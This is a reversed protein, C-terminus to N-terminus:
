RAAAHSGGMAQEGGILLVHTAARLNPRPPESSWRLRPKIARLILGYSIYHHRLAAIPRRARRHKMPYIKERARAHELNTYLVRVKSAVFLVRWLRELIDNRSILCVM